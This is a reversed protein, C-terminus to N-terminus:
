IPFIYVNVIGISGGYLINEWHTYKVLVIGTRQLPNFFSQPKLNKKFPAQAQVALKKVM